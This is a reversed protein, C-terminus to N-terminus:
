FLLLKPSDGQINKPYGFYCECLPQNASKLLWFIPLILGDALLTSDPVPIIQEYICKELWQRPEGFCSCRRYPPVYSEPINFLSFSSTYNIAYRVTIKKNRIFVPIGSLSESHAVKFTLNIIITISSTFNVIEQRFFLM